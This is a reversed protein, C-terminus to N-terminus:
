FSSIAMFIAEYNEGGGQVTVNQTGQIDHRINVPATAAGVQQSSYFSMGYTQVYFDAISAIAMIDSSSMLDVDYTWYIYSAAGQLGGNCFISSSIKNTTGNTGATGTDGKDGKSGATGTSGNCVYATSSVESGTLAKDGNTDVGTEIKQGGHVCNSGATEKNMQVLSQAGNNGNCVTETETVEDADLFGNQNQDFGMQIEIGGNACAESSALQRQTLINSELSSGTATEAAVTKSQGKQPSSNGSNLQDIFDACGALLLMSIIFGTLIRM